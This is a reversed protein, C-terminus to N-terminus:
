NLKPIKCSEWTSMKYLQNKTLKNRKLKNLIRKAKISGVEINVLEGVFHYTRECPANDFTNTYYFSLNHDQVIAQYSNWYRDIHNVCIELYALLYILYLAGLTLLFFIFNKM